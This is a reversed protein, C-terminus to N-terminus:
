SVVYIMVGASPENLLALQHVVSLTFSESVASYGPASLTVHINYIGAEPPTGTIKGGISTLWEVNDGAISVSVGPTNSVQHHWSVGKIGSNNPSPAVYQVSSLTHITVDLNTLESLDRTFNSTLYIDTLYPYGYKLSPEWYEYVFIPSDSNLDPNGLITVTELNCFSSGLANGISKIKDPITISTLAHCGYFLNSLHNLELSSNNPLRVATLSPCNNFAFSGISNISDPLVLSELAPMRAFASGALKEIGESVTVTRVTNHIGYLISYYELKGTDENLVPREQIEKVVYNGLTSPIIIHEQAPGQYELLKVENTSYNQYKWGDIVGFPDAHADDITNIMVLGGSVLLVGIIALSSIKLKSNSINM